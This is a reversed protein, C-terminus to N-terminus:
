FRWRKMLRWGTWIAWLLLISCSKWYSKPFACWFDAGMQFIMWAVSIYNISFASRFRELFRMAPCSWFNWMLFNKSLGTRCAQATWICVLCICFLLQTQFVWIGQCSLLALTFGRASESFAHRDGHLALRQVKQISTRLSVANLCHDQLDMEPWGSSSPFHLKMYSQKKRWIGCTTSYMDLSALVAPLSVYFVAMNTLLYLSRRWAFCTSVMKKANYSLSTLYGSPALKAQRSRSFLSGDGIGNVSTQTAVLAANTKCYRAGSM